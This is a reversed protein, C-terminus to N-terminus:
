PNLDQIIGRRSLPIDRSLKQSPAPIPLGCITAFDSRVPTYGTVIASHSAAELRVPAHQPPRLQRAIKSRLPYIPARDFPREILIKALPSRRVTRIFLLESELPPRLSIIRSDPPFQRFHQRMRDLKSRLIVGLKIRHYLSQDIQAQRSNFNQM